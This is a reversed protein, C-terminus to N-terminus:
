FRQNPLVTCPFHHVGDSDRITLIGTSRDISASFVEQSGRLAWTITADTIDVVQRGVLAQQGRPLRPCSTGYVGDRYECVVDNGIEVRVLKADTDIFHLSPRPSGECRLAITKANAAAAASLFIMLALAFRHM